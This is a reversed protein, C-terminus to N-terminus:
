PDHLHSSCTDFACAWAVSFSELSKCAPQRSSQVILPNFRSSRALCTQAVSTRYPQVCFKSRRICIFVSKLKSKRKEGLFTRMQLGEEDAAAAPTLELWGM